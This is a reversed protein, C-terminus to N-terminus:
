RRAPLVVVPLPDALPACLVAPASSRRLTRRLQLFAISGLLAPIGLQFARYALVAAAAQSLPAGVLVLGGVLGGDTGGIGGPLPILGGLQGVVYGFLLGAFPLSGGFAAFTVALAAVDFGLYGLSGAFVSPRGSRLLAGADAVGDGLTLSGTQIVGRLRGPARRSRIWPRLRPLLVVAVIVALALGGLIGTVATPARAHLVGATIGLGFLAACIFNPASTIVFFAVSRRAIYDTQLGGRRLAWAGLALGGAGGTPLLVNTAQEAMGLEYSFRWSVEACFVGRFALVYSLCSALELVGALVVLALDAHTFRSRVDGLGPLATVAAVTLAAFAGLQLVRAGLHRPALEEPMEDAAVDRSPDQAM